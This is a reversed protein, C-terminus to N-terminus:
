VTTLPGEFDGNITATFTAQNSDVLNPTILFSAVTGVWYFDSHVTTATVTAPLEANALRLRFVRLINDGSMANLTAHDVATYNVAFELTPADSQGQIQSSQAQGFQPVNVINAPTGVSPFSRVNPVTSLVADTGGSDDQTAVLTNWGVVTNTTRATAVASSLYSVANNSIAIESYIGAGINSIQAM